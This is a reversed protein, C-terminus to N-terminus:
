ARESKIQGVSSSPYEFAVKMSAQNRGVSVRTTVILIFTMKRDRLEPGTIPFDPDNNEVLNLEQLREMLFGVNEDINAIM